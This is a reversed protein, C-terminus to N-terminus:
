LGARYVIEASESSEGAGSVATVVFYYTQGNEVRAFRYPPAIGAIKKGTYRTVGPETSGYLNYTNANPVADWSLMVERLLTAM